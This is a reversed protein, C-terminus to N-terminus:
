HGYKDNLKEIVKRVPNFVKDYTTQTLHGATISESMLLYTLTQRAAPSPQLNAVKHATMGQRPAETNARCGAPFQRATELANAAPSKDIHSPIIMLVEELEGILMEAETSLGELSANNKSMADVVKQRLEEFSEERSQRRDKRAFSLGALTVLCAVIALAAKGPGTNISEVFLDWM